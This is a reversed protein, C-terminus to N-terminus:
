TEKSKQPLFRRSRKETKKLYTIKKIKISDGCSYGVPYTWDDATCEHSNCGAFLVGCMVVFLLVFLKKM